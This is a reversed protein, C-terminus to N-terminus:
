IEQYGKGRLYEILQADDTQYRGGVFQIYFPAVAVGDRLLGHVYVNAFRSVFTVQPQPQAEQTDTQTKKAMTKILSFPM